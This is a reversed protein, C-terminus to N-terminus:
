SDTNKITIAEIASKKLVFFQGFVSKFKLFFLKNPKIPEKLDSVLKQFDSLTLVHKFEKGSAMHFTILYTNTENEM